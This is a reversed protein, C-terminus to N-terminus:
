MLFKAFISGTIFRRPLSVWGNRLMKVNALNDFFKEKEKSQIELSDEKLVNTRLLNEKEAREESFLSEMKTKQKAKQLQESIFNKEM